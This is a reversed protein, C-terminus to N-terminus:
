FFKPKYEERPVRFTSNIKEVEADEKVKMNQVINMSWMDHCHGINVWSVRLKWLKKEKVYFAKLVSFAVDRNNKFRYLGGVIYM